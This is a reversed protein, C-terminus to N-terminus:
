VVMKSVSMFSEAEREDLFKVAERPDLAASALFIPDSNDIVDSFRSEITTM